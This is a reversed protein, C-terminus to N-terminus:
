KSILSALEVACRPRGLHGCGALRDLRGGPQGAFGVPDRIEDLLHDPTGLGPGRRRPPLFFLSASRHSRQPTSVEAALSATSM